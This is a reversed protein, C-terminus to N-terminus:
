QKEGPIIGLKRAEELTIVDENAPKAAHKEAAQTWFDDANQIKTKKTVAQNLLAEMEPAPAAQALQDTQKKPAPKRASESATKLEGTVGMSKLAKEIEGRLASLGGITELIREETVLGVGAVLLAYLPTVPIFLLDHDGGSFVHYANPM